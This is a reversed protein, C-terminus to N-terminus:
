MNVDRFIALSYLKGNMSFSAEIEDIDHEKYDYDHERRRRLTYHRIQNHSIKEAADAPVSTSLGYKLICRLM